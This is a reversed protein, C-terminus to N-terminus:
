DPNIAQIAIEEVVFNSNYQLLDVFSKALEKSNLIRSPDHMWSTNDFFPTDISGPLLCTVKINQHRLEERLSMAFGRQAFKAAIYSTCLSVRGEAGFYSSNILIHRKEEYSANLILPILYKCCLFTGKVMVNHMKDWDDTNLTTVPEFIGLGANNILINVKGFNKELYNHLKVVDAEKGVDTQFAFAESNYYEGENIREEIEKLKNINRAVIVINYNDRNGLELAIDKGVGSSAGTIVVVNKDM